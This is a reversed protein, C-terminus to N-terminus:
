YLSEVEEEEEEEKGTNRGVDSSELSRLPFRGSPRFEAISRHPTTHSKAKSKPKPLNQKILEDQKKREEQYRLYLDTTTDLIGDGGGGGDCHEAALVAGERGAGRTSVPHAFRTFNNDDGGNIGRTTEQPPSRLQPPRESVTSVAQARPLPIRQQQRTRGQGQDDSIQKVRTRTVTGGGNKAAPVVSPPPPPLQQPHQPLRSARDAHSFFGWSIYLKRPPQLEVYYGNGTLNRIMFKVCTEMDFLPRGMVLMPVDFDCQSKYMANIRRIRTYCRELVSTFCDREKQRRVLALRHLDYVNIQNAM